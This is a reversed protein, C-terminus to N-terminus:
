GILKCIEELFFIFCGKDSVEYQHERKEADEHYGRLLINLFFNELILPEEQLYVM